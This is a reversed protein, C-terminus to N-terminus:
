IIKRRDVAPAYVMSSWLKSISQNEVIKLPKEIIKLPKEIIKLPEEITKRHNKLSRRGSRRGDVAPAEFDISKM